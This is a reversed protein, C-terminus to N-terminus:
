VFVKYQERSQLKGCPGSGPPTGIHTYNECNARFTNYLYVTVQCFKLQKESVEEGRFVDKDRGSGSIRARNDIAGPWWRKQEKNYSGFVFNYTGCLDTPQPRM